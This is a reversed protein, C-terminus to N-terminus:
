LKRFIDTPFIDSYIKRLKQLSFQLTARRRMRPNPGPVQLTKHQDYITRRKKKKQM